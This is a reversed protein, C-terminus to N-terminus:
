DDSIKIIKKNINKDKLIIKFKKMVKNLSVFKKNSNTIKKVRIGM